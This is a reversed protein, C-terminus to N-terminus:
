RQHPWLDDGILNHKPEDSLDSHSLQRNIFRSCKLLKPMRMSRTHANLNFPWMQQNILGFHLWNIYISQHMILQSISYLLLLPLISWMPQDCSRGDCANRKFLALYLLPKRELFFVWNLKNVVCGMNMARQEDMTVYLRLSLFLSRFGFFLCFISLWGVFYNWHWISIFLNGLNNSFKTM